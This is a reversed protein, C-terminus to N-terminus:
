YLYTIQMYIPATPAQFGDMVAFQMEESPKWHRKRQNSFWNNIQKMDFGTSEALASKQTEPYVGSKEEPLWVLSFVCRYIGFTNAM